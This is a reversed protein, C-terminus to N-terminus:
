ELNYYWKVQLFADALETHSHGADFRFWVLEEFAGIWVLLWHFLCSAALIFKESM